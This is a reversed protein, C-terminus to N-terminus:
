RNPREVFNGTNTGCDPCPWTPPLDAFAIGQAAESYVFYCGRCIFSRGSVPAVPPSVPARASIEGPLEVIDGVSIEAETKTVLYIGLDKHGFARRLSGPIDLDRAGTAPDV